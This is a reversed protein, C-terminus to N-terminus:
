LDAELESYLRAAAHQARTMRREARVAQRQAKRLARLRWVHRERQAQDILERQRQSAMENPLYM